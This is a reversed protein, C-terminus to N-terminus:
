RGLLFMSWLLMRESRYECTHYLKVGSSFGMVGERIGYRDTQRLDGWGWRSWCDRWVGMMIGLSASSVRRVFSGEGGGSQFESVWVYVWGGTREDSVSGAAVCPPLHCRSYIKKKKPPPPTRSISDQQHVPKGTTAPTTVKSNPTHTLSATSQHPPVQLHPAHMRTIHRSNSHRATGGHGTIGYMRNHPVQMSMRRPLLRSQVEFDLSFLKTANVWPSTHHPATGVGNDIRPLM